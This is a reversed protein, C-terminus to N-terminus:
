NRTIVQCHQIQGSEFVCLFFFTVRKVYKYETYYKEMAFNSPDVATCHRPGVRVKIRAQTKCEQSHQSRGARRIHIPPPLEKCRMDNTLQTEFLSFMCAVVFRRRCQHFQRERRDAPVLASGM